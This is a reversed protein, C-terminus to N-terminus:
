SNVLEKLREIEGLIAEVEDREDPYLWRLRLQKLLRGVRPILIDASRRYEAMRCGDNLDM